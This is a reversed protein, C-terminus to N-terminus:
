TMGLGRKRAVFKSIEMAVVGTLSVGVILAWVAPTLPRTRFLAQMPQSHIFLIQAGVAIVTSFFLLKNALLPVRFISRVLSRSSFAQWIQFMVMTTVAATRAQDLEGTLALHHRFVALTGISFVVAIVLTHQLVLRDIIPARVGRPKRKLVFSEGPEFALAVDQLGNTVLNVWLIQVATYPIHWAMALAALIAVVEAAGCGILFLVVKRINELIYRGEKVAEYISAFSDDLLVMDAAERAAETGAKGMAIGIEARRLAPADNVGDGTVAVVLDRRQLAEVIRLKDHPTVRAFVRAEDLRAALASDDMQALERGTIVQRDQERAIKEGHQLIGVEAAIAAGTSPHDGTIMVVRIGAQKCGEVAERAEVRPPDLIGILGLLTLDRVDEETIAHTEWPRVALAVVRQGSRALDDAAERWRPEDLPRSGDPVWERTCRGLLMEPAGKAYMTHVGDGEHQVTAMFKRASSFPVESVPASGEKEHVLQPALAVAAELLAVETPNGSFVHEGEDDVVYEANSCFVGVRMIERLGASIEESVGPEAEAADECSGLCALSSEPRVDLRWQGLVVTRVRMRNQTLTGTKDTCVVQTSGMTEAAALRRVLANRQAMRRAGLSLVVTVVVPLGEPIASVALAVSILFVELVAMGRFLGFVMTIVALGLIAVAVLNAFHHFRRQLPTEAKQVEEVTQAIRGLESSRGTAIVVGEGRGEVILSGSYALNICDAMPTEPDQLAHTTKAVPEAEGTLLSEDALLEHALVLRLDAPVRTGAEISVVDGPVLDTSSITQNRGNRRVRATPTAMKQLAEMARTARFEQVFGIVGNLVVVAMIVIADSYHKLVATVVGAVLLVYILPNAVQDLLLRWTPYPPKRAIANPGYRQLRAQAEAQALGTAATDLLRLVQEPEVTIVTGREIPAFSPSGSGTGKAEVM